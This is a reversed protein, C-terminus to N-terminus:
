KNLFWKGFKFIMKFIGLVLLMPIMVPWFISFATFAQENSEWDDYWGGESVYKDYDFGIKVGFYKFFTLTLLLGIPYIIMILYGTIM